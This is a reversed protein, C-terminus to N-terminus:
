YFGLPWRRLELTPEDASTQAATLKKYDEDWPGCAAECITEHKPVEGFELYDAVINKVCDGEGGSLTCHGMAEQVVLGAGPHKAAMARAAKLPTVPDLRNSLFLIPAAPHGPVTKGGATLKAAPTTFPGKFVWNSKFPWASCSMRITSWYEGFISSTSLQKRVYKRWWVADHGTVDDGDACLVSAGGEERPVDPEPGEAIPCADKLKPVTSDLIVKLLNTTNGRMAQDLTEALNRFKDLPKYLVSGIVQRVDRGTLVVITGSPGIGPAPTEDVEHLWSYFRRSLESVSKDEQRALACVSPGAKHCGIFFNEFIEDTDVLNTTWGQTSNFKNSNM